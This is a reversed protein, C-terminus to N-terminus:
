HGSIRALTVRRPRAMARYRTEDAAHDEQDTDVDDPNRPDRQLVPLTRILDTCSESVWLGPREPRERAAEALLERLRQWGAVRSNDAARFALRHGAAAAGEVLQDYISPGGASIFIAPDAVCGHWALGHSLRGIGEGLARNSLRRGVDPRAMGREDRAVTYWEGTRILSGRPFSRGDALPAGDSEAWLGLSAPRAAGWDFSRSRRWGPPVTFPAVVHRAPTWLDDFFGGAVVDWGGWRWAKVLVAAGTATLRREYGPDALTLAPNDELRAPIFVRLEGTRPDAIPTYGGPSPDVYWAKVWNHGAGGPNGTGRLQVAAGHASRLTGRIRDVPEPTPWQTMEEFCVWTFAYGLYDDAEAADWLHRFRLVAGGPFRWSLTTGSWAAGLAPYLDHSRRISDELNRARRRFFVGSARGGFRGAHRLWDGLMGDTKGGGRAGGFFAEPIDDPLALLATQPGPQPAWIATETV